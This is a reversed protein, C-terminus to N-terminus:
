AEGVMLPMRVDLFNQNVIGVYQCWRQFSENWHWWINKECKWYTGDSEIFGAGNPTM